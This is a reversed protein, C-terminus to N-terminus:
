AHTASILQVRLPRRRGTAGCCGVILFAVDNLGIAQAARGPSQCGGTESLVGGFAFILRTLVGPVPRALLAARARHTVALSIVVIYVGILSYPSGTRWM